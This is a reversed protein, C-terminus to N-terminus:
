SRCSRPRPGGASRAGFASARGASRAGSRTAPAAARARTAGRGPRAPRRRGAARGRRGQRRRGRARRGGPRAAVPRNAPRKSLSDSASASSGLGGRGTGPRARARRARRRGLRSAAMAAIARAPGPRGTPGCPRGSSAPRIAGDVQTSARAASAIRWHGVSLASAARDHRARPGHRRSEGRARRGARGATLAADALRNSALEDDAQALAQAPPLTVSDWIASRTSGPESAQIASGRGRPPRVPRRGSARRRGLADLRTMSTPSPATRVPARLGPRTQEARLRRLFHLERGDLRESPVSSGSTGAMRSEASAAPGVGPADRASITAGGARACRTSRGSSSATAVPVRSGPRVDRRLRRACGAAPVGVRRDAGSGSAIKARSAAATRLPRPRSAIGGPVQGPPRGRGRAAHDGASDAQVAVASPPSPLSTPGVRSVIRWRVGSSTSRCTRSGFRSTTARNDELVDTASLSPRTVVPASRRRSARRAEGEAAGAPRDLGDERAVDVLQRARALREHGLPELVLDRHLLHGVQEREEQRRSQAVMVPSMSRDPVQVAVERAEGAPGGVSRM